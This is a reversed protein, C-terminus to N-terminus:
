VNAKSWKDAQEALVSLDNILFSLDGLPVSVSRAGIRILTELETRYQAGTIESLAQDFAIAEYNSAPLLTGVKIRRGMDDTRYVTQIVRM